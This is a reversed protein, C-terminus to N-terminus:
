TAIWGSQDPGSCFAVSTISMCFTQGMVLDHQDRCVSPLHRSTIPLEGCPTVCWTNLVYYKNPVSIALSVFSVVAVCSYGAYLAGGVAAILATVGLFLPVM